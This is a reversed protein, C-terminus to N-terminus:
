TDTAVVKLGNPLTDNAKDPERVRTCLFSVATQIDPRARKSLYLLKAVLHHFISIDESELKERQENVEFLHAAAPTEATGKFDEPSEKIVENIYDFMSFIVKRRQTYDIQMGLYDHTRGRHVTM